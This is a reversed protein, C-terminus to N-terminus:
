RLVLIDKKVYNDIVDCKSEYEYETQFERNEEGRTISNFEERM